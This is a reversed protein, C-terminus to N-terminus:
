RAPTDTPIFARDVHIWIIRSLRFFLPMSVLTQVVMAVMVPALDWGAVFLLLCAVPLITVVGLGYSVYMAGVFYGSEREFHLGCVDCSPNMFLLRLSWFPPFIRGQRCRPCRGLLM